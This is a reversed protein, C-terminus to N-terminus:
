FVVISQNTKSFSIPEERNRVLGDFYPVSSTVETSLNSSMTEYPKISDGTSNVFRVSIPPDLVGVASGLSGENYFRSDQRQELMDRFQGYRNRRYTAKSYTPFASFIGYKWGRIIPGYCWYTDISKYDAVQTSGYSGSIGSQNKGIGYYIKRFDNEALGFSRADLTNTNGAAATYDGVTIDGVLLTRVAPSRSTATFIWFSRDLKVPVKGGGGTWESEKYNVLIKDMVSRQISSYRPEFPFSKTWYLDSKSVTSTGPDRTDLAIFFINLNPEIFIPSNNAACINSPDPLLTDYFRESSICQVNRSITSVQERSVYAANLTSGDFSNGPEGNKLKGAGTAARNSFVLQRANTGTSRISGTIHRDIYSGSLESNYFVDFEDLIPEMGIAEHIENTDLRSNLTDHYEKEERILSGYLTIRFTGASIGVDHSSSVYCFGNNSISAPAFPFVRQTDINLSASVVASRYKSLSFVLKDKPFLLYPSKQHQETTFFVMDEAAKPGLNVTGSIAYLDSTLLKPSLVSPCNTSKGFITRGTLGEIGGIKGRGAIDQVILSGNSFSASTYSASIDFGNENQAREFWINSAGVSTHADLALSVSGSFISNAPRPVVYTPQSFSKFGIPSRFAKYFDTAPRTGTNAFQLRLTKYNDGQPIITGSLILDKQNVGMYNLLAFTIAPGGLDTVYRRDGAGLGPFGTSTLMTQDNFWGAGAEFPIEVICKELLFPQSIISSLDIGQTVGPNTASHILNSQVTSRASPFGSEDRMWPDAGRPFTFFLDTTSIAPKITTGFQGAVNRVNSSYKGLPGFLREERPYPVNRSQFPGLDQNQGAFNGATLSSSSFPNVPEFKRTGYDYYYSSATLPFLTSKTALPLELRIITKSGLTSAFGIGVDEVSTGTLYFSSSLYGYEPKNAENFPAWPESNYSRAIWQEIANKDVMGLRPISIDSSLDPTLYKSGTEFTTPYSIAANAKFIVTNTDDFVIPFRGTRSIDGTRAVTPYSARNRDLEHILRRVKVDRLTM